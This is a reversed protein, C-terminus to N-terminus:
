KQHMSNKFAAILAAQVAKDTAAVRFRDNCMHNQCCHHVRIRDETTTHIELKQLTPFESDDNDVSKLVEDCTKNRNVHSQLPIFSFLFLFMAILTEYIINNDYYTYYVNNYCHKYSRAFICTFSCSINLLYKIHHRARAM